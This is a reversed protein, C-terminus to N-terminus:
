RRQWKSIDSDNPDPTPRARLGSTACRGVPARHVPAQLRVRQNVSRADAREARLPVRRAVLESYRSATAPPASRPAKTAAAARDATDKDAAERALRLARLRATKESEAQQATNAEAQSNLTRRTKFQEEARRRSAGSPLPQFSMSAAEERCTSSKVPCCRSGPIDNSGPERPMRPLCATRRRVHSRDGRNRLSSSQM